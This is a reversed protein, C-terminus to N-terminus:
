HRCTLRLMLQGKSNDVAEKLEGSNPHEWQLSSLKSLNEVVSVQASESALPSTAM